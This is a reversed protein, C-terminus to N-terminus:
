WSAFSNIEVTMKFKLEV